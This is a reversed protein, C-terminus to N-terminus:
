NFPEFLDDLKCDLIKSIELLQIASPQTTNACWRSITMNSVELKEALYTKTIMKDALVVRIKNKYGTKNM